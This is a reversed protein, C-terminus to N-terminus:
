GKSLMRQVVYLVLIFGVLYLLDVSLQKMSEIDLSVDVGKSYGYVMIGLTEFVLCLSGILILHWVAIKERFFDVVLSKIRTLGNIIMKM